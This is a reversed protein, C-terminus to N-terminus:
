IGNCSFLCVFWFFITKLNRKMTNSSQAQQLLYYKKVINHNTWSHDSRSAVANGYWEWGTWLSGADSKCPFPFPYPRAKTEVAARTTLSKIM